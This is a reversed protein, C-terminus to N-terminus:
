IKIIKIPKDYKKALEIMSRTGPSEGNWFCIVFDCAEAMQRGKIPPIILLSFSSKGLYSLPIKVTSWEVMIELLPKPSAETGLNWLGLSTTHM